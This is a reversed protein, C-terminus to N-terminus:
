HIYKFQLVSVIKIGTTIFVFFYNICCCCAAALYFLIVKDVVETFVLLSFM